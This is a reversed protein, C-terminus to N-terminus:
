VPCPEILDLSYLQQMLAAVDDRLTDDDVDFQARMLDAVASEDLSAAGLGELVVLAEPSLLHTAGSLTNFLVVEDQWQRYHM